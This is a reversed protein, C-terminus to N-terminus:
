KSHGLSFPQGFPAPHQNGMGTILQNNATPIEEKRRSDEFEREQRRRREEYEREERLRDKDYKMRKEALELLLSADADRMEKLNGVMTEVMDKM